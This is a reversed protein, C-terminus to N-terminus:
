PGPGNTLAFPLAYAKSYFSPWHSFRNSTLCNSSRKALNTQKNEHTCVITREAEYRVEAQPKAGAHCKALLLKGYWVDAEGLTALLAKTLRLYYPWKVNQLNISLSNLAREFDDALIKYKCTNCYIGLLCWFRVKEQTIKFM